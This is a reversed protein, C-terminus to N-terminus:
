GRVEEASFEWHHLASSGYFPLPEGDVRLTRGNWTLTSLATVATSPKAFVKFRTLRTDRDIIQESSTGQGEGTGPQVRMKEVVVVSSPVNNGYRDTAGVDVPNSVTVDHILLATFSM